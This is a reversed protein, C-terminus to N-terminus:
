CWGIFVSLLHYGALAQRRHTRRPLLRQKRPNHLHRQGLLQNSSCGPRGAPRRCGAASGDLQQTDGDSLQTPRVADLERPVDTVRLSM